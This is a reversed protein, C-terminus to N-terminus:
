QADEKGPNFGARTAADLAAKLDGDALSRFVDWEEEDVEPSPPWFIGQRINAAVAETCAIAMDEIAKTHGPWAYCGTDALASPLNMYATEITAAAGEDGLHHRWYAAYLPLQV